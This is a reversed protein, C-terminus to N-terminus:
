ALTDTQFLLQFCYQIMLVQCVEGTVGLRSASFSEHCGILDQRDSFEGISGAIIIIFAIFVCITDIFEQRKKEAKKKEEAGHRKEAEAEEDYESEADDDDDEDVVELGAKEVDPDPM